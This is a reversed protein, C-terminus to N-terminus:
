VSSTYVINTYSVLAQDYKTDRGESLGHSLNPLSSLVKSFWKLREFDIRWINKYM